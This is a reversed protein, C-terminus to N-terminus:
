IYTKIGIYITGVVSIVILILIIVYFLKFILPESKSTIKDVFYEVFENEM